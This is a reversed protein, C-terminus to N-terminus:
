LNTGLISFMSKIMIAPNVRNQGLFTYKPPLCKKYLFKLKTFTKSMFIHFFWSFNIISQGAFDILDAWLTSFMSLM